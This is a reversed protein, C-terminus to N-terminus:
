GDAEAPAKQKVPEGWSFGDSSVDLSPPPGHLLDIDCLFEGLNGLIPLRVDGSLQVSLAHLEILQHALEDEV